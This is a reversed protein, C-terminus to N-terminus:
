RSTTPFRRIASTIHTNPSRRVDFTYPDAFHAEDRNASEFWLVVKEGEGIRMGGIETDTTATRRLYRVPTAWRLIEEVASPTTADFDGWWVHRQVPHETLARIGHSIANRTTENGAAVLLLVFSGFEEPSLRQGEVTAHMLESTIDDRPRLRAVERVWEHTQRIMRPTFGRQILGRLQGHRPDDMNIISTRFRSM